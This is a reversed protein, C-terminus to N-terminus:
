HISYPTIIADEQNLDAAFFGFRNAIVCSSIFAATLAAILALIIASHAFLVASTGVLLGAVFMMRPDSVCSMLHDAHGAVRKRKEAGILLMGTDFEYVSKVRLEQTIPNTLITIINRHIENYGFWNEIAEPVYFGMWDYLERIKQALVGYEKESENLYRFLKPLEQAFVDPIPEEGYFFELAAFYEARAKKVDVPFNDSFQKNTDEPFFEDKYLALQYQTLKNILNIKEQKSLM